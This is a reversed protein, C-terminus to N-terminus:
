QIGLGEILAGVAVIKKDITEEAWHYIHAPFIVLKNKEPKVSIVEGNDMKFFTKGGNECTSLYLIYTATETRKHDHGKQWGHKEYDIFHFWRYFYDSEPLYQLIEKIVDQFDADRCLNDTQTGGVTATANPPLIKRNELILQEFKALLENSLKEPVEKIILGM